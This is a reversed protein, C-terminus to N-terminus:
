INSNDNAEQILTLYQMIVNNPYAIDEFLTRVLDLNNIYTKTYFENFELHYTNYTTYTM